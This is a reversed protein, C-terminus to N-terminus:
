TRSRCCRSRPSTPCRWAARLRRAASAGLTPACEISGCRGRSTRSSGTRRSRQFETSSTACRGIPTRPSASGAPSPSAKSGRRLTSATASSTATRSSSTASMSASASNSASNPGDCRRQAAGHRAAGRDRLAHRGRRQRVRDAQRRRHTKVVRGRHAAIMPDMLERRHANLRALTGEEDAGMLRSYGVVDAALIAALRREVRQEAM